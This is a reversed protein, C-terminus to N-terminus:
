VDGSYFGLDVGVEMYVVWVSFWLGLGLLVVFEFGVGRFVFFFM